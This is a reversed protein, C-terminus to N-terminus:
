WTSAAELRAKVEEQRLNRAAADKLIAVYQGYSVHAARAAANVKALERGAATGHTRRAAKEKERRYYAAAKLRRRNAAHCEPGCTKRRGRGRATEFEKGCVVCIGIM